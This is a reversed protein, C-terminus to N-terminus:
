TPKAILSQFKGAEQLYRYVMINVEDSTLQMNPRSTSGYSPERSPDQPVHSNSNGNGDTPPVSSEGEMSTSKIDKMEEGSEDGLFPSKQSVRDSDSM